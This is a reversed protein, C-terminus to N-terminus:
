IYRSHRDSACRGRIVGPKGSRHDEALATFQYAPVIRWQPLIVPFIVFNSILGFGKPSEMMSGIALGLSTIALALLILIIVTLFFSMFSFSVGFFLVGLVILIM